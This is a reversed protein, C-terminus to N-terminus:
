FEKLKFLHNPTVEIVGDRLLLCIHNNVSRQGLAVSNKLRRHSKPRGEKQRLAAMMLQHDEDSFPVDSRSRKISVYRLGLKVISKRRIMDALIDTVDFDDAGLKRNLHLQVTLKTDGLISSSSFFHGLLRRARRYRRIDPRPHVPDLQEPEVDEPDLREPEVDEHDLQEPEVVEPDLGEPELDEPHPLGQNVNQHPQRRFCNILFNM